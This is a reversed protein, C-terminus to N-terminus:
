ATISNDTKQPIMKAESRCRRLSTSPMVARINSGFAKLRKKATTIKRKSILNDTTMAFAANGTSNFTIFSFAAANKLCKLLSERNQRKWDPKKLLLLRNCVRKQSFARVRLGEPSKVSLYNTKQSFDIQKTVKWTM